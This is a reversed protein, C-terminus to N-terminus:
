KSIRNKIYDSGCKASCFEIRKENEDCYYTPWIDSGHYILNGDNDSGWIEHPKAPGFCVACVVTPFNSIKTKKM